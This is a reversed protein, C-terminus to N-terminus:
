AAPKTGIIKKYKQLTKNARQVARRSDVTSGYVKGAAFVVAGKKTGKKQEWEEIRALLQKAEEQTAKGMGKTRGGKNRPRTDPAGAPQSQAVIRELEELRRKKEAYRLSTKANERARYKAHYRRCQARAKEPHERRYKRTYADYRARHRVFHDADRCKESCFKQWPISSEFNRGCRACAKLEPQKRPRNSANWVKKYARITERNHARYIADQCLRSCFRQKPRRTKFKKGCHACAKLFVIRDGLVLGRKVWELTRHACASSHYTCRPNWRTVPDPCHILIGNRNVAWGICHKKRKEIMQGRHVQVIKGGETLRCFATQEDLGVGM